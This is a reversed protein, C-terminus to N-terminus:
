TEILKKRFSTGSIIVVCEGKIKDAHDLYYALVEQATGRKIEEFQKTLERCVCIIRDDSLTKVLEELLKKLRHTSEFCVITSESVEIEKLATQRGKKQPLFGVFAWPAPMGAVSVAAVVASAGPIPVVVYGADHAMGVLRTGPDSICPTGADTVLAVNEGKELQTFIQAVSKREDHANFSFVKTSVGYHNLLKKSVRTDEAYIADVTKLIEVARFTMDSLNGIPTAVIYLTGKNMGVLNSCSHYGISAFYCSGGM